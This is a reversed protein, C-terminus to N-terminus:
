EHHLTQQGGMLRHQSTAERQGHTARSSRQNISQNITVCRKSGGWSSASLHPKNRKALPHSKLVKIISQNITVCRKSGETTTSLHPKEKGTHPEQPGKISQNISRSAANAARQPPASIRSRERQWHTTRSSRQNISQNITVCRKSGETTTSLHPKKRKRQNISQNITVCRKSGGWSSISLHPKKRTALPHSKLVKIVSPNITVCRTNSWHPQPKQTSRQKISISQAHRLTQQGGMLSHQSTAEIQGHTARSSRSHNIPQDDHTM